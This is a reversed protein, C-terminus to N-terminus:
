KKRRLVLQKIGQGLKKLRGVSGIKHNEAFVYEAQDGPVSRQAALAMRLETEGSLSFGRGPHSHFRGPSAQREAPRGFSAPVDDFDPDLLITLTSHMFVSSGAGLSPSPTPSRPFPIQTTSQSSNKRIANYYPRTPHGLPAVYAPQESPLDPLTKERVPDPCSKVSLDSPLHTSFRARIYSMRRKRRLMPRPTDHTCSSSSSPQEDLCISLNPTSFSHRHTSSM